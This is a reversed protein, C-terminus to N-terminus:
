KVVFKTSDMTVNYSMWQLIMENFPNSSLPQPHWRWTNAAIIITGNDTLLFQKSKSEYFFLVHPYKEHKYVASPSLGRGDMDSERQVYVGEYSIWPSQPAYGLGKLYLRNCTALTLSVDKIILSVTLILTVFLKNMSSANPPAICVSSLIFINM